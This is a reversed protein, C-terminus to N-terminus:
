LITNDYQIESPMKHSRIMHVGDNLCSFELIKSQFDRESSKELEPHLNQIFKKRSLGYLIPTNLKKLKNITEKNLLQLIQSLSKGFHGFGIGPDLIFFPAGKKKGLSLKELFFNIVEDIFDDNNDISNKHMLILPLKFHAAVDFTTLTKNQYNETFEGSYIDNIIDILNEEALKYAIVPSFTDISFLVKGYFIKRLHKIMPYVRNWEADFSLNLEKIKPNSSQGGFDIIKAGHFVLDIVRRYAANFDLYMKGDSFSDHTLNLIGM